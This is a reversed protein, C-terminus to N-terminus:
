IVALKARVADFVVDIGAKNLHCGNQVGGVVEEYQPLLVGAPALTSNVNVVHWGPKGGFHTQVYGNVTNIRANTVYGNYQGEYAATVPTGAVFIGKGTLLGAMGGLIYDLNSLMVGESGNSPPSMEQAISNAMAGYIVVAGARQLMSNIGPRNMQRVMHRFGQGMTGINVCSPHVYPGAISNTFSDGIMLVGGSPFTTELREYENNKAEVIQYYLDNTIHLGQNFPTGAICNVGSLLQVPGASVAAAAQDALAKIADATTKIQELVTSMDNIELFLLTSIWTRM